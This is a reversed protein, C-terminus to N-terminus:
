ASRSEPRRPGASATRNREVDRIARLARDLRRRDPPLLIELERVTQGYIDALEELTLYAPHYIETIRAYEHTGREGSVVFTYMRVAMTSQRTRFVQRALEPPLHIEGFYSPRKAIQWGSRDFVEGIPRGGLIEAHEPALERDAAQTFSVVAFTRCVPQRGSLSYLNSVRLDPGNELVEIGFSGFTDEIRESNLLARDPREPAEDPTTRCAAVLVIGVLLGAGRLLVREAGNPMVGRAIVAIAFIHRM